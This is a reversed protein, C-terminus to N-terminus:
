SKQGWVSSQAVATFQQNPQQRCLKFADWESVCKSIQGEHLKMCEDVTRYEAMCDSDASPRDVQTQKDCDVCITNGKTDGNNSPKSANSGM